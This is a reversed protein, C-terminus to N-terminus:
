TTSKLTIRDGTGKVLSVPKLYDPHRIPAFVFLLFRIDQICPSTVIDGM